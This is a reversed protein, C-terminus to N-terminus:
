MKQQQIKVGKPAHFHFLSEAVGGNTTLAGFRYTATGGTTNHITLTSLLHARDFQCDLQTYGGAQKPALELYVGGKKFKASKITFLTRLEGFGNLFALAERPITANKGITYAAAQTDGPKYLWLSKGDSIYQQPTAGRYEIRIKGPRKLWLTGQNKISRGLTKVFLDQTFEATLDALARYTSQIDNIGAEIDRASGVAPVLLLCLLILVRM